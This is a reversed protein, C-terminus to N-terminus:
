KSMEVDFRKIRTRMIQVVRSVSIGLERALAANSPVMRRARAVDLIRRYQERTISPKRGAIM